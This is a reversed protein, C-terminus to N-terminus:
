NTTSSTMSSETDVSPHVMYYMRVNEGDVAVSSALSEQDM